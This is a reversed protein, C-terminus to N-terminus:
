SLTAVHNSETNLRFRHSAAPEATPLRECAKPEKEGPACGGLARACLDRASSNGAPIGIRAEPRPQGAQLERSLPDDAGIGPQRRGGAQQGVDALTLQGPDDEEAAVDGSGRCTGSRHNRHRDPYGVVM